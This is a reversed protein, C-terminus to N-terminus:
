TTGYEDSAEPLLRAPIGVARRRAPVDEIVVANAGVRANYGITIPGFVKAGTGIRVRRRLYPGFISGDKLGLTVFPRLVVGEGVYTLGDVVVQGHPIYIGPRIVAKPGISIQGSTIAMRHLVAPILPIRGSRCAAEARYCLQAFFSDTIWALRVVQVLADLRSGFEHHEGRYQATIRADAVVAAWFGVRAEEVLHHLRRADEASPSRDSTAWRKSWSKRRLKSSSM